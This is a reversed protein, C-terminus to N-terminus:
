KRNGTMNKRYINKWQGKPPGEKELIALEKENLRNKLIEQIYEERSVDPNNLVRKWDFDIEEAQFSAVEVVIGMGLWVSIEGRPAVGVMITSYTTKQGTSPMFFGEHFLEFMKKHPLDFSGGYFKNETYSFWVIEMKVPVPKFSDGVIHISGQKGWGNDLIKGSPIYAARGNEFILDGQVIKMPYKKPACETPLWEFRNSLRNM